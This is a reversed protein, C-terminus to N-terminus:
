NISQYIKAFFFTIEGKVITGRVPTETQQECHRFFPHDVKAGTHSFYNVSQKPIIKCLRRELTLLM